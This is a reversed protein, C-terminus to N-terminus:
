TGLHKTLSQRNVRLLRLIFVTKPATDHVYEEVHSFPRSIIVRRTVYWLHKLREDWKKSLLHTLM